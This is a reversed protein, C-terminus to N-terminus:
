EKIGDAETLETENDDAPEGAPEEMNQYCLTLVGTILFFPANSLFSGSVLVSFLLAVWIIPVAMQVKIGTYSVLIRFTIYCGYAVISLATILGVLGYEAMLELVMSHPYPRLGGTYANYGMSGLGTLFGNERFAKWAIGYDAYRELTRYGELQQFRNLIEFDFFTLLINVAIILGASIGVFERTRGQRILILGLALLAAIACGVITGRQSALLLMFAGVVVIALYFHRNNSNKSRMFFILAGLLTMAAFRSLSISNVGTEKAITMRDSMDIASFGMLTVFTVFLFLGWWPISRCYSDLVDDQDACLMLIVYPILVRLIINLQFAAIEPNVKAGGVYVENHWIMVGVLIYLLISLPNRWLNQWNSNIILRSSWLVCAFLGYKVAMNLGTLGAKNLIIGVLEPFLTLLCLLAGTREKLLLHGVILILALLFLYAM